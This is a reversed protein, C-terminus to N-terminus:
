KLGIPRLATALDASPWARGGRSRWSGRASGSCGSPRRTRRGRCRLGRRWQLSWPRWRSRCRFGARRWSWRGISQSRRWPASRSPCCSRAGKRSRLKFERNNIKNTGAVKVSEVGDKPPRSISNFSQSVTPIIISHKELIGRPPWHIQCNPHCGRVCQYLVMLGVEDNSNRVCMRYTRLIERIFPSRLIKRTM